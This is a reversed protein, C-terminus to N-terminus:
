HVRDSKIKILAGNRDASDRAALVARTLLFGDGPGVAPFDKDSDGLVRSYFPVSEPEARLISEGNENILRVTGDNAVAELVGRTGAIRIRDDGYTPAESPRLLDATVSAFAGNTLEFIATCSDECDPREAHSFNTHRATVSAFGLGTVFHIMDAAHIGVWPLTGGYKAREGFWEQREGFPYSKQASISAAEGIAGAAYVERAKVMVPNFRMSLMPLLQVGNKQVADYVADTEVSTLGIPKECIVDCGAEAALVANRAIHDPRTSVVVLDPGASTLLGEASPYVPLAEAFAPHDQFVEISEGEYAPAVGVNEVDCRGQFERAVQPWHGFGGIYAVRKLKMAFTFRIASRPEIFFAIYL